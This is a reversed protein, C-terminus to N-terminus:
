EEELYFVNESLSLLIDNEFKAPLFLVSNGTTRMHPLAELSPLCLRSGSSARISGSVNKLSPLTVQTNESATIYSVNELNPASIYVDENLSLKHSYKLSPLALDQVSHLEVAGYVSELKELNIKDANPLYNIILINLAHQLNPAVLSSNDLIRIYGTVETLNPVILVANDQLFLNGKILRLNPLEVSNREGAYSGIIGLNSCYIETIYENYFLARRPYLDGLVILEDDKWELEVDGTINFCNAIINQEIKYKEEQTLPM